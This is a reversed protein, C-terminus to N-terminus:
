HTPSAYCIKSHISFEWLHSKFSSQITPQRQFLLFCLYWLSRKSYCSDEGKHSTISVVTVTHISCLSQFSRLHSVSIRCSQSPAETSFYNTIKLCISKTSPFDSMYNQYQLCPITQKNVSQFFDGSRSVSFFHTDFDKGTTITFGRPQWLTLHLFTM